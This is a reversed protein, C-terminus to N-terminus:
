FWNLNLRTQIAGVVDSKPSSMRGDRPTGLYKQLALVTNYKRGDQVIGEGDVTLNPNVTARMRLQVAKVLSSNHPSIVGDVPTGMVQQWRSITKPGLEKDVNLLPWKTSVPVVIPQVPINTRALWEEKTQGSMISLVALYSVPDTVHRRRIELHIHWKHDSSATEVTNKVMDYRGASGMGDWGNWCNIYQRRPDSHDSWVNRLRTHCTVMDGLALSMDVAASLDRPWSGPPAKDDVRVVSYNDSPQDEISIHYGGQAKHRADGVIGSFAASKFLAEWGPVFNQMLSYALTTM